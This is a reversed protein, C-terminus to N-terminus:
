LSFDQVSLKKGTLQGHNSVTTESKTKLKCRKSEISDEGNAEKSPFICQQNQQEGGWGGGQECVDIQPGQTWTQPQFATENVFCKQRM